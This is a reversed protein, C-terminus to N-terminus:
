GDEVRRELCLVIRLKFKINEVIRFTIDFNFCCIDFVPRIKILVLTM